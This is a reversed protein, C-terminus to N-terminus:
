GLQSREVESLFHRLHQAVNQKALGLPFFPALLRGKGRLQRVAIVEVQTTGEISTARIEWSSGPNFINSAIVTGKVSGPDSWDYRMREWVYGIPWPNGETVVAFDEGVEHVELHAAHVDPWLDARHESFDRAAELVRESPVPTATVVHV